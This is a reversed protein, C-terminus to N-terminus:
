RVAALEAQLPEQDAALSSAYDMTWERFTRAQSGTIQEVTETVTAPRHIARSWFDLLIDLIPAPLYATLEQRAVDPPIEQFILKRASAYGICELMKLNTLSQPGTREYKQGSNLPDTLTRAAVAAIDRPDIPALAANAYPWRVINGARLQPGWWTIASSAFMGPRLFTWDFGAEQILAEVDAHMRAIFNAQQPLDDRVISSSLFVIRRTHRRIREVLANAQPPMQRLLLFVSDVGELAHNLSDPTSLDASVAQISHPFSIAAPNRALARVRLGMAALETVVHRGVNGTAGTVLITQPSFSQSSPM